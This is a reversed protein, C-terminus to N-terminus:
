GRRAHGQRIDATASKDVQYLDQVERPGDLSRGVFFSNERFFDCWEPTLETGNTQITHAVAIGTSRYTAVITMARRLVELEM